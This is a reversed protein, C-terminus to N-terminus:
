KDWRETRVRSPDYRESPGKEEGPFGIPIFAFPILNGPIGFHERFAEVRQERPYIGTWVAALGQAHIALLMNQVCAACDQPWFPGFREHSPDGIVLVGAQAERAMKAHPHIDPISNLVDRDRVTVFHWPQQNGASPAAMAARLANEVADEPLPRDAFKRISRRTMIAHIADM